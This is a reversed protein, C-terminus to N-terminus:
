AINDILRVDGLFAAAFLRGEELYRDLLQLTNGSRYELYEVKFAYDAELQKRAQACAEDPKMGNKINNLANLMAANLHPAIKRESNNLRANRSSLALGSTERVTAVPVIEIPFNLDRVMRSILFLQQYDKEGFLAFDAPVQNFLKAVVTAVGEFHGKRYANCLVPEGTDVTVNSSFDEPYMEEASPAYVILNEFNSLAKLDDAEDSPYTEFDDSNNFQTPNVFISVITQDAIKVARNVLSIHGAHLGGMTPVLAVTRGAERYSLVRSRIENITTILETM